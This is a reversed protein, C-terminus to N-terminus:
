SEPRAALLSAALAPLKVMGILEKILALNKARDSRSFSGAASSGSDAHSGQNEYWELVFGKMLAMFLNYHNDDTEDFTKGTRAKFLSPCIALWATFEATVPKHAAAISCYAIVDAVSVVM